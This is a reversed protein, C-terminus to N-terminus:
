SAGRRRARAARLNIQNGCVRVDHWTGSRNRSRDYFAIPCAPNACIKLREWTGTLEAEFCAILVASRLWQVPAKGRPIAAVARDDALVFDAAGLLTSKRAASESGRGTLADRVVDRLARLSPLDADRLRSVPGEEGRDAWEALAEDLWAQALDVTELLDPKTETGTSNLLRHVLGLSDPALKTGYRDTMELAMDCDYQAVSAFRRRIQQYTLGGGAREWVPMM